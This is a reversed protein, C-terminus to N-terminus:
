VLLVCFLASLASSAIILGENAILVETIFDTNM